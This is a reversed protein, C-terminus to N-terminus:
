THTHPPCRVFAVFSGANAGFIACSGVCTGLNIWFAASFPPPSHLRAIAIIRRLAHAASPLSYLYQNMKLQYIDKQPCTM